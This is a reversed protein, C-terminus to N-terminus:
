GLLESPKGLIQVTYKEILATYFQEIMRKTSGIVLVDDVTVAALTTGEENICHLLCSDKDYQM